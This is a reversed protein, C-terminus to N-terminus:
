SLAEALRSVVEGITRGEASAARRIAAATASPVRVSMVETGDGGEGPDGFAAIYADADLHEEAWERAKEFGLPVIREGDCLLSGHWEAYQTQPGGEGHLFYEGTRKRYLTERTYGFGSGREWEGVSRATDTDYLRGDIIKRM